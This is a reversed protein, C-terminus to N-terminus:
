NHHLRTVAAFRHQRVIIGGLIIAVPDSFATALSWFSFFHGTSTALYVSAVVMMVCLILGLTSTAVMERGKAFLAVMCGTFLSAALYAPWIVRLLWLYAAFHRSWYALYKDTLESLLWDPASHTLRLLLLGGIVTAWTLPSTRLGSLFLHAVTKRMQRRYWRRAPKVGANSRVQVFEEQLDGLISEAEDLPAFLNLLWEALRATPISDRTKM